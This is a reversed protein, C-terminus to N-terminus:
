EALDRYLFTVIQARTCPNAPSFTDKSTGATIENEVAWLVADTYYKGAAVDKFPNETNAAPKGEMRWLFTVTQDRTVTANPSFTTASTGATIENEVAWLVAEYFYDSSKVDTFPNKTLKPDPRGAARWLFTVMQARTCAEEPSFTDASTGNTIVPVHKVAWLVPDYYYAGKEVDRFPANAAPQATPAPSPTPAPDDGLHLTANLISSNGTQIEIEDWQAQTGAYYVDTLKNCSWFANKKIETVSEPIAVEKLALAGGFAHSSVSVVGDPITYLRSGMYLVHTKGDEDKYVNLIGSFSKGAPVCLLTKCDAALLAGDVSCYNPNGKAVQIETLRFCDSFVGDGISTVSAPIAVSELSWCDSFATGGISTVSNPITVSTLSQCNCFVHSGISTVSNPITISTLSTCSFFAHSGISTVSNPITISTLSQCFYFAYSGINTVGASIVVTKIQEGTPYEWWPAPDSRFEEMNGTGSITLRGDSDLTWTLNDGDAGCTGSSVIEAAGAGFPLLSLMLCLALLFSLWRKKM